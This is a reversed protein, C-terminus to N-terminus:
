RLTHPMRVPACSNRAILAVPISRTHRPLDAGASPAPRAIIFDLAQRGIEEPFQEVSTITPTTYSAVDMNACGVVSIDQPVRLRRRLLEQIVRAAARDEWCVIATPPTAHALAANVIGRVDLTTPDDTFADFFLSTALGKRQMVERMTRARAYWPEGALYGIYAITRHGQAYLHEIVAGALAEEDSNITDVPEEFQTCDVSVPWVHHRLMEQTTERPIVAQHASTVLIGDVRREILAHIAKCTEVLRSHTELTIIHYGSTYARELVGRLLRAYFSCTVNPLICGITYTNGSILGQMLRNPLYHYREALEKIRARTAVSIRPHDRLALSVTGVSVGALEALQRMSTM